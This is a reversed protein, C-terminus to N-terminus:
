GSQQPAASESSSTSPAPASLVAGDRSPAAGAASKGTSAEGSSAITDSSTGGSGGNSGGGSLLAAAVVVVVLVAALSAAALPTLLRIRIAPLLRRGKAEPSGGPAPFGAAARGDLDRTFDESPRPVVATLDEALVALDALDPDVADGRLAAELAELERAVVPDLTPERRSM